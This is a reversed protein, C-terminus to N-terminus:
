RFRRVRSRSVPVNPEEEEEATPEMLDNDNEDFDDNGNGDGYGDQEQDLEEAEDEDHQQLENDNRVIRSQGRRGTRRLGSNSKNDVSQGTGVGVGAGTSKSAASATGCRVLKLHDEFARSLFPKIAAMEVAGIGTVDVIPMPREMSSGMAEASMTHINRRIKDMRVTSIDELLVRVVEVQPIEEHGIGGSGGGGGSSAHAGSRGAGITQLIIRSIEMYRFPLDKSFQVENPNREHSLVKKLHTVHLWQPPILRCLNRKRLYIALWLPVSTAEGAIFPGLNRQTVLFESLQTKYTFIPVITIPEDSALFTKLSAIRQPTNNIDTSTM